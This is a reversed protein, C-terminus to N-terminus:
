AAKAVGAAATMMRESLLAYAAAWADRAAPTFREGLGQELTWLLAEGVKAYHADHVRYGAHRRGLEDVAGLLPALNDLSRVVTGIMTMLKRGQERMDGTFLARTDPAIAFLREYFLAAAEDAIPAVAAFSERVLAIDDRTM